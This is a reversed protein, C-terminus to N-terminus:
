GQGLHHPCGPHHNDQQLLILNKGAYIQAPSVIHNLKILLQPDVQYQRELSLLSEGLPVPQTILTGSLGTFGPMVLQDGPFINQDAMGNTAIIDAVSVNFRISIDWLTDGSQVIYVPGSPPTATQATTPEPPPTATQASAPTVSFITLFAASCLLLRKIM